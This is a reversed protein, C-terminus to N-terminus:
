NQIYLEFLNQKIQDISDNLYLQKAIFYNMKFASFLGFDYFIQDVIKRIKDIL